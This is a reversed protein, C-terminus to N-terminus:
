DEMDQEFDVIEGTISDVDVDYEYQGNKLEIEYIGDDLKIKTVTGKAKTLAAEIAKEKSILNTTTNANVWENDDDDQREKKQKLLKGTYADFKLDYEEKDAHVEVEYVSRYRNQDLEIDAVTGNVVALAKKEIEQMSLIKKEQASGSLLTTSGIAAGVGLTVVLAPIMMIKKM